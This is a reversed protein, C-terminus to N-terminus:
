TSGGGGLLVAMGLVSGNGRSDSGCYSSVKRATSLELARRQGPGGVVQLIGAPFAALM